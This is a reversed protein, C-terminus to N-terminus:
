TELSELHDQHKQSAIKQKEKTYRKLERRNENQLKLCDEFARKFIQTYMCANFSDDHKLCM